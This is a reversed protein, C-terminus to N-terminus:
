VFLFDKLQFPLGTRSIIPCVNFNSKIEFSVIHLVSTERSLYSQTDESVFKNQRTAHLLMCTQIMGGQVIHRYSIMTTDFIHLVVYGVIFYTIVRKNLIHIDNQHIPTTFEPISDFNSNKVFGTSTFHHNMVAQRCVFRIDHSKIAMARGQNFSHLRNHLLISISLSRCHSTDARMHRNDIGSIDLIYFYSVITLNFTSSAQLITTQVTIFICRNMNSISHHAIIKDNGTTGAHLISCGQGTTKHPLSTMQSMVIRSRIGQKEAITLFLITFSTGDKCSWKSHGM